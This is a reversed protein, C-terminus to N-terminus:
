RTSTGFYDGRRCPSRSSVYDQAQRNNSRLRLVMRNSNRYVEM